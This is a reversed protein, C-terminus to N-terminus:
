SWDPRSRRRCRARHRARGDVRSRARPREAPGVADVSGEQTSSASGRDPRTCASPGPARGPAPRPTRDATRRAAVRQLPVGGIRARQLGLAVPAGLLGVVRPAIGAGGRREAGRRHGVCPARVTSRRSRALEAHAVHQEAALDGVDRQRHEAIMANTIPKAPPQTPRLVASTTSANVVDFTVSCVM